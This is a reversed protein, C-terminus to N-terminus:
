RRSDQRASLRVFMVQQGLVQWATGARTSEVLEASLWAEQASGLIFRTAQELGKIDERKVQEDRGVVRTDLMILDALNGLSFVRYIRPLRSQVDERVPMWELYAQVATAERRGVDGESPQPERRRRGTDNAVEHDDRNAIFPHRRHM